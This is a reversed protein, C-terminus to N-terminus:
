VTYSKWSISVAVIFRDANVGLIKIDPTKSIKVEDGGHMLTLGNTFTSRILKAREEVAKTGKGLPYMLTVQMIGQEKKFDNTIALDEIGAYLMNVSQYPVGSIPIYGSTPDNEYITGLLPSITNLQNELAIRISM